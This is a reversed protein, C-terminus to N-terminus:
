SSLLNCHGFVADSAFMYRIEPKLLDIALRRLIFIQNLICVAARLVEAVM